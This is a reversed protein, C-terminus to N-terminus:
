KVTYERGELCATLARVYDARRGAPGADQGPDYGTESTAWAGCEQRDQEQLAASQGAKPYMFVTPVGGDAATEGVEAPPPVVMYGARAPDWRYYAGNGHYYRAAGVYVVSCDPPLVSVYAGIPAAVTVYSSGWRRYFAGEFYFYSLGGIVFAAEWRPVRWLRHGIPPYRHHVVVRHHVGGHDRGPHHHRVEHRDHVGHTVHPRNGRHHDRGWVEGPVAFGVVLLAAMLLVAVNAKWGSGIPKSSTAM